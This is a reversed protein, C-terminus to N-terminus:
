KIDKPWDKWSMYMIDNIKISENGLYFVVGKTEDSRINIYKIISSSLKKEAYISSKIEIAYTNEWDAIADIEFGKKDRFYYVNSSKGLNYKKKILENIAYAEVISGKYKSLLLEEVSKIKLLYCLIGTDTFYLKPSKILQRSTKKNDVPLLHIIYSSELISLWSKITVASVGVLNAISEYSLIQGNYIACASIFKKFTSLNSPNIYDAVDKEIYTNIYNEFWDDMIYKKNKDYLPPYLGKFILDYFKTKKNVIEPSSFPLLNILGVRGALSETIKNKLKFQSSGTLIYKGPEYENNDISLKIADFIEPVKQAEDIILGDSFANIFDNPNSKALERINIDDFSIYKKEPFTDKVLTSKGSQRPGTIAVAGFQKSLRILTEKAERKIM